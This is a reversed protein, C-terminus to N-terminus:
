ISVSAGQSLPQLPEERFNKLEIRREKKWKEFANPQRQKAREVSSIARALEERQTGPRPKDAM